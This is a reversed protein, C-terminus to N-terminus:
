HPLSMAWIPLWPILSYDGVFPHSAPSFFQFIPENSTFSSMMDLFGQGGQGRGRGQVCVSIYIM